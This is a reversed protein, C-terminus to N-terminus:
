RIHLDLNLNTEKVEFISGRNRYRVLGNKNEWLHCPNLTSFRGFLLNLLNLNCISQKSSYSLQSGDIWRFNASKEASSFSDFDNEKYRILQNSLSGIWIGLKPNWEASFHLLIFILCWRHHISDKFEPSKAWETVKNWTSLGGCIIQPHIKM